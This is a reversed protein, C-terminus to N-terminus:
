RGGMLVDRSQPGCNLLLDIVSLDPIFEDCTGAWRQPYVPCTFDQFEVAVGAEEFLSVDMYDRGGAGALYTDAGFRRCLNVLRATSVGEVGHRSSLELPTAIGLLAALLKVSATAVEAM